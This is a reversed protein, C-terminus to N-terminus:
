LLAQCIPISPHPSGRSGSPRRSGPTPHPHPGPIDRTPVYMGAGDSLQEGSERRPM